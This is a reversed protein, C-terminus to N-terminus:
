FPGFLARAYLAHPHRLAVEVGSSATCDWRLTTHMTDRGVLASGGSAKTALGERYMCTLVWFALPTPNRRVEIFSCVVQVEVGQAQMAKSRACVDDIAEHILPQWTQADCAGGGAQLDAGRPGGAEAGGDQQACRQHKGRQHPPPLQLAEYCRDMDTGQAHQFMNTM